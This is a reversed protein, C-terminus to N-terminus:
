FPGLAARIRLGTQWRPLAPTSRVLEIIGSNAPFREFSPDAFAMLGIDALEPPLFTTLEPM